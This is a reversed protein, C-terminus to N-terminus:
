AAGLTDIALIAILNQAAHAAIPAWLSGSKRYAWALLLGIVFIPLAEGLSLHFAAFIAASAAAAALAGFRAALGGFVFGRFFLEEALPTFGAVAAIVALRTAGRGFLEPPLPEISLADAGLASAILEYAASFALGGGLAALAYRAVLWGNAPRLGLAAWGGGEPYKAAALLWAVLIAATGAAVAALATYAPAASEGGAAVAFGVIAIAAFGGIVVLAFGIALERAGWRVDAGM